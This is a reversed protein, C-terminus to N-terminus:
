PSGSDAFTLLKDRKSYSMKNELFSAFPAAAWTRASSTLSRCYWTAVSTSLQMGPSGVTCRIKINGMVSKKLCGRPSASTTSRQLRDLLAQLSLFSADASIKHSLTYIKGRASDDCGVRVQGNVGNAYGLRDGLIQSERLNDSREVDVLSFLVNKPKFHCSESELFQYVASVGVIRSGLVDDALISCTNIKAVM